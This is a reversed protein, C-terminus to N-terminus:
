NFKKKIKKIKNLYHSGKHYGWKEWFFNAVKYKTKKLTILIEKNDSILENCNIIDEQSTLTHTMFIINAFKEGFFVKMGENKNRYYEFYRKFVKLQDIISRPSMVETASGERNKTYTYIPLNIFLFNKASIIFQIFFDCDEAHILGKEFKINNAKIIESKYVNQTPAWYVDKVIPLQKYIINQNVVKYLPKLEMEKIFIKGNEHYDNKSGTILDPYENNKIVESLEELINENLIDDSDLFIIFDGKAIQLGRNRAESVGENKKHIVSIQNYELNYEDCITRSSDTSGDNILILEYSKFKQNLVSEICRKLYLEVNYVPVIISFLM